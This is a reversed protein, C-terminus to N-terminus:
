TRREAGIRTSRVTQCLRRPPASRYGRSWASAPAPQSAVVLDGGVLAVRERMAALGLAPAAPHAADFGRGDDVVHLEAWGSGRRLRIEVRSAGAHRGANAVAEEAVRYLATELPAALRAAAETADLVVTLGHTEGWRGAASSLAAVLGLDDLAAPRLGQARRRVADGVGRVLEILAVAQARAAAADVPERGLRNAVAQLGVQVAACCQGVEELLERAVPRLRHARAARGARLADGSRPSSGTALDPTEGLRRVAGPRVM